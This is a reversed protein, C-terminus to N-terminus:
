GRDLFLQKVQKRQKKADTPLLLQLGPTDKGSAPPHQISHISHSVVLAGPTAVDIRKQEATQNQLWPVLEQRSVLRSQSIVLYPRPLPCVSTNRAKSFVKSRSPQNNEADLKHNLTFRSGALHHMLMKCILEACLSIVTNRRQCLSRYSKRSGGRVFWGRALGTWVHHRCQYLYAVADLRDQLYGPRYSVVYIDCRRPSWFGFSHEEKALAKVSSSQFSTLAVAIKEM